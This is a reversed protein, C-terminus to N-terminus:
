TLIDRAEIRMGRDRRDADIIGARTAIFRAHRQALEGIEVDAHGGRLMVFNAGLMRCLTINVDRVQCVQLIAENAGIPSPEHLPPLQYTAM